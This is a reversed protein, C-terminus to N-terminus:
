LDSYRQEVALEVSDPPQNGLSCGVAIAAIQPNSHSLKPKSIAVHAIQTGSNATPSVSRTRLYTVVFTIKASDPRLGASALRAAQPRDRFRDARNCQKQTGIKVMASPVPVM